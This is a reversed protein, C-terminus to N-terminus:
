SGWRSQPVTQTHMQTSERPGDGRQYCSSSPSRSARHLNREDAKAGATQIQTNKILEPFRMFQENERQTILSAEAAHWQRERQM